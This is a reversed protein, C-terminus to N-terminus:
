KKQDVDKNLMGMEDLEVLVCLVVHIPLKSLIPNETILTYYKM